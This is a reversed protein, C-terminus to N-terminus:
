AHASHPRPIDCQSDLAVYARIELKAVPRRTSITEPDAQLEEPKWRAVRAAVAIGCV